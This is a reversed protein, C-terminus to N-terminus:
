GSSRRPAGITGAAPRVPRPTSTVTGRNKAGFRGRRVLRRLRFREAAKIEDARVSKALEIELASSQFGQM